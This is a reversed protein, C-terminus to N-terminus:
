LQGIIDVLTLASPYVYHYLHMWIDDKKWINIRFNRVICIYHIYYHIYYYDAEDIM